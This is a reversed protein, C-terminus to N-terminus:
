NVTSEFFQDYQNKLLQKVLSGLEYATEFSKYTLGEPSRLLNIFDSLEEERKKGKKVFIIRVLDLEEAKEFEEITAKSYITGFIGIYFQCKELETIMLEQAPTEQPPFGEFYIPIMGVEKIANATYEREEKLEHMSSSIFVYSDLRDEFLSQFQPKIPRLKIDTKAHPHIQISEVKGIIPEGKNWPRSFIIKTDKTELIEGTPLNEWKAIRVKPRPDFETKDKDYEIIRIIQGRRLGYVKENFWCDIM